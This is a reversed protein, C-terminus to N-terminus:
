ITLRTRVLLAVRGLVGPMSVRAHGTGTDRHAQTIPPYHWSANAIGARTRTDQMASQMGIGANMKLGSSSLVHCRSCTANEASRQATIADAGSDSGTTKAVVYSISERQKSHFPAHSGLVRASMSLQSQIGGQTSVLRVACPGGAAVLRVSCSPVADAIALRSTWGFRGPM